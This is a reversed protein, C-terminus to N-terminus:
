ADNKTAILEICLNTVIAEAQSLPNSIDPLMNALDNLICHSGDGNLMGTNKWDYLLKALETINERAFNVAIGMKHNVSM